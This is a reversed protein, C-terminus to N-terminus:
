YSAVNFVWYYGGDPLPNESRAVSGWNLRADFLTQCHAESQKWDHIVDASNVAGAELSEAFYADKNPLFGAEIMRQVPYKGNATHDKPSDSLSYNNQQLWNAYLTASKHLHGEFQISPLGGKHFGSKPCIGGEQRAKNLAMLVEEEDTHYEFKDLSTPLPLFASTTTYDFSKGSSLDTAKMEQKTPGNSNCSSLLLSGLITLATLRSILPAAINNNM